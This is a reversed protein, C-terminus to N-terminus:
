TPHESIVNSQSIFKKQGSFLLYIFIFLFMDFVHKVKIEMFFFNDIVFLFLFDCIHLLNHFLLKFFFFRIDLICLHFVSILFFYYCYYSWHWKNTNKVQLQLLVYCQYFILMQIFYLAHTLCLCSTTRMLPKRTEKYTRIYWIFLQNLRQIIYVIFNM